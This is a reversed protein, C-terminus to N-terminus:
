VTEWKIQQLTSFFTVDGAIVQATLNEDFEKVREIDKEILVVQHGHELLTKCIALGVEGGGAIVFQM